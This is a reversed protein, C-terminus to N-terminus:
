VPAGAKICNHCVGFLEIVKRDVRALFRDHTSSLANTLVPSELERVAGCDTCIAFQGVHNCCGHTAHHHKHSCAVYANLSEIRHVWGEATLKELARYITPPSKIGSERLQGLVDYASLPRVAHSLVDLVKRCQPSLDPLVTSADM